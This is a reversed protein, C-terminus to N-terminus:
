ASGSESGFGIKPFWPFCRKFAWTSEVWNKSLTLFPRFFSIVRICTSRTSYSSVLFVQVSDINFSISTTKVRHRLKTCLCHRKQVVTWKIWMATNQSRYLTKVCSTMCGYIPTGFYHFPRRGHQHRLGITLPLQVRKNHWCKRKNKKMKMTTLWTLSLESYGILDTVDFIHILGTSLTFPVIDKKKFDM